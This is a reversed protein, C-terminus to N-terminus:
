FYDALLFARSSCRRAAQSLGASVSCCWWRPRPPALPSSNSTCFYLRWIPLLTSLVDSRSAVYAVAETQLPHLLFWGAGFAALLDRGKRPEGALELTKRLLLFAVLGALLHLAVNVVHYSVPDIESLQYNFWFSAGLLPRSGLWIQIPLRAADPNMFPLYRDDLLFPGQLSPSYIEFVVAAALGGIVIHKGTWGAPSGPHPAATIPDPARKRKM